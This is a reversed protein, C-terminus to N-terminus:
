RSDESNDRATDSKGEVAKEIIRELRWRKLKSLPRTSIISVVDGVSAEEHEDHAYFKKRKKIYKKYIPHQVIREVLVVITKAPANSVVRGIKRTKVRVEGRKM